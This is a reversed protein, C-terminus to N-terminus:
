GLNQHERIRLKVGLEQALKKIAQLDLNPLAVATVFVEPIYKKCEKIFNIIEAFVKEGYPSPCIRAYTAADAANLSVSVVDILGKLEAAVNRQFVLNALGDTNLRVSKVGKHKMRSAIVKIIELRQTPEGYGCFVVEDYEEPKGMAQFIEEVTPEKELKLYHGKVEYDGTNKPCFTCSLTCKNTINLYMSNRIQYAIKSVVEGGPLNFLRKAALGTIRAVDEKSLSKLEAIKQATYDVFAPENRKGRKPEPALYPCDTELIIKELPVDAVVEQLQHAKGFTVIGPVSINFGLKIVKEASRVDGSFCHFVGGRLPVGVEKLVELVETEADRAHIVVPLDLEGAM